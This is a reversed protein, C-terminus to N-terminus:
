SRTGPAKIPTGYKYVITLVASRSIGGPNIGPQEEPVPVEL